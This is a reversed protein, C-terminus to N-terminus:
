KGKFKEIIGIAQQILFSADESYPKINNLVSDLAKLSKEKITSDM